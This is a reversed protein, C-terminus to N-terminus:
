RRPANAVGALLTDIARRHIAEADPGQKPVGPPLRVQTWLGALGHVMAWTALAMAQLEREDGARKPGLQTAVASVLVQWARMSQAQVEPGQEADGERLMLQMQRPHEMAFRIYSLGMGDLDGTRAGAEIADAFRRFAEARLAELLANRDKFHHAPAAHSVGLAEALSRLSLSEVGKKTVATWAASLLAARLDGHHYKTAPKKRTAM